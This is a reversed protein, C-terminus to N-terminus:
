LQCERTQYSTSVAECHSLICEAKQQPQVQDSL